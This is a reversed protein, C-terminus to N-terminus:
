WTWDQYDSYPYQWDYYQYTSPQSSIMDTNGTYNNWGFLDDLTTAYQTPDQQFMDSSGQDLWNTDFGSGPTQINNWIYSGLNGQDSNLIQNILWQDYTDYVNANVNDPPTVDGLPVETIDSLTPDVGNTNPANPDNLPAPNGYNAGGGFIGKLIDQISTPLNVNSGTGSNSGTSGSKGGLLSGLINGLTSGINSAKNTANANASADSATKNGLLNSALNGYQGTLATTYNQANGQLGLLSNLLTGMLNQGQSMSNFTNNLANQAQDGTQSAVNLGQGFSTAGATNGQNLFNSLNNYGTQIMNNNFDSTTRRALEQSLGSSLEGVGGAMNNATGYANELAPKLISEQAAAMYEPSLGSGGILQSLTNQVQQQIPTSTGQGQQLAGLQNAANAQQNTGFEMQGSGMSGILQQLYESMQQPYDGTLNQGLYSTLANNVGSSLNANQGLYQMLYNYMGPLADYAFGGSSNIFPNTTSTSSWAQPDYGTQGNAGLTPVTVNGSAVAPTSVPNAAVNSPNTPTASYNTSANVGTGASGILSTMRNSPNSNFKNATTVMPTSQVGPMSTPTMARTPATSPSTAGARQGLTRTTTPATARTMPQVVPSVSPAAAAVQPTQNIPNGHPDYQAWSPTGILQNYIGSTQSTLNYPDSVTGNEMDADMRGKADKLISPDIGLQQGMASYTMAQKQNPDQAYALFKNYLDDTLATDPYYVLKGTAPDRYTQSM